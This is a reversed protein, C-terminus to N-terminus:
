DQSIWTQCFFSAVRMRRVEGSVPSASLFQRSRSPSSHMQYPSPGSTNRESAAWCSDASM